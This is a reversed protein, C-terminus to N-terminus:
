RTQGRSVVKEASTAPDNAIALRVADFDFRTVRASPRLRPIRGERAWRRITNPSLRLRAALEKATILQTDM